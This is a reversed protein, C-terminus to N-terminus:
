EACAEGCLVDFFFGCFDGGEAEASSSSMCLPTLRAPTVITESHASSLRADQYGSPLRSMAISGLSADFSEDFGESFGGWVPDVGVVVVFRFDAVAFFGDCHEGVVGDAGNDGGVAVEDYALLVAFVWPPGCCWCAGGVGLVGHVGFGGDDADGEAAVAVGEDVEVVDVGVVECVGAVCGDPLEDFVVLLLVGAM